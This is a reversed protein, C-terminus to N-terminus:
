GIRSGSQAAWELLEPPWPADPPNGAIYPVDFRQLLELLEGRQLSTAETAELRRRAATWFAWLREPPANVLPLLSEEALSTLLRADTTLEWRLMEPDDGAILFAWEAAESMLAGAMWGLADMRHRHLWKRMAPVTHELTWRGLQETTITRPADELAWRLVETPHLGRAEAEGRVLQDGTDIPPWEREHVLALLDELPHDRLRHRHMALAQHVGVLTQFVTADDLQGARALIVPAGALINAAEYLKRTDLPDDERFPRNVRRVLADSLPNGQVKVDGGTAAITAAQAASNIFGISAGFSIGVGWLQDTTQAVELLNALGPLRGMSRVRRHVRAARSFPNLSHYKWTENKLGQKFLALPVGAALAARPGNCLLAYVPTAIMGLLGLWNLVDSVLVITGVVPVFRGLVRPAFWLTLRGFTALTSFFDQVNDLSTMIAGWSRAQAADPGTEMRLIQERRREIEALAEPTLVPARKQRRAAYYEAKELQSVPPKPRLHLEGAIPVLGGPFAVPVSGPRRTKPDVMGPVYLVNRQDQRYKLEMQRSFEAQADPHLNAVGQKFREWEETFMGVIPEALPPM